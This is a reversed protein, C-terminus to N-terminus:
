QTSPRNANNEVLAESILGIPIGKAVLRDIYLETARADPANFHQLIIAGVRARRLVLNAKNEPTRETVGTLTDTCWGIVTYGLDNFVGLVRRSRHGAGGPLRAIKPIIYDDGLVQRAVREWAKVDAIIQENSLRTKWAHSMSHYAIEHGSAVAERWLDPYATLRHGIVFLTARVNHRKLANLIRQINGKGWGDDFSLCMMEAHPFSSIARTQRELPVPVVPTVPVVPVISSPTVVPAPPVPSVPATSTVTPAVTFASPVVPTPPSPLSPLVPTPVPPAVSTVPLFVVPLPESAVVFTVVPPVVVSLAQGIWFLVGGVIILASYKLVFVM